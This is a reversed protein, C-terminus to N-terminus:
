PTTVAGEVVALVSRLLPVEAQSDRRHPDRCDHGEVAALARRLQVAAGALTTPRTARISAQLEAIRELTATQREHLPVRAMVDPETSLRDGAEAYDVLCAELEHEWALLNADSQGAAPPTDPM